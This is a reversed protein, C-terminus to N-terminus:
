IKFIRESRIIILLKGQLKAISAIYEGDIGGVNAPPLECEAPDLEVVDGPRDILFGVQNPDNAAAKLIVCANRGTERKDVQYGLIKGLDFLTVVQGRMNFLGKVFPKSGPVPTFEVHRNIEKVRNIDIGFLSEELYFTFVKEM